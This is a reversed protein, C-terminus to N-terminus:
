NPRAILDALKQLGGIKNVAYAPGFKKLEAIEEDIVYDISRNTYFLIPITDFIAINRIFERALVLGVNFHQTQLKEQEVKGNKDFIIQRSEGNIKPVSFESTWDIMIDIIFAAISEPTDHSTSKFGASIRAFDVIIEVMDSVTTFSQKELNPFRRTIEIFDAKQTAENASISAPNTEGYADFYDDLWLISPRKNLNM